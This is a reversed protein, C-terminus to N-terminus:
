SVDTEQLAKLLSNAALSIVDYNVAVWQWGMHITDSPFGGLLNQDDKRECGGLLPPPPGAFLLGCNM